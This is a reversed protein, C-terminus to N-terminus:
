AGEPEPLWRYNNAFGHMRLNLLSDRIGLWSIRFSKIERPPEVVRIRAKPATMQELKGPASLNLDTQAIAFIAPVLFPLRQTGESIVRFPFVFDFL